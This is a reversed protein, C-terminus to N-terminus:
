KPSFAYALNIWFMPVLLLVTVVDAVAVAAREGDGLQKITRLRSFIATASLGVVILPAFFMWLPKLDVSNLGYFLIGAFGLPLLVLDAAKDWLPTRSRFDYFVSIVAMAAYLLAYIALAATM